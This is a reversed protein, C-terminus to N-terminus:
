YNRRSQIKSDYSKRNNHALQQEKIYIPNFSKLSM